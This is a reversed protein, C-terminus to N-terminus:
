GVQSAGLERIFSKMNGDIEDERMLSALRPGDQDKNFRLGFNQLTLDLALEGPALYRAESPWRSEIEEAKARYVEAVRGKAAELSQMLRDIEKYTKEEVDEGKRVEHIDRPPYLPVCLTKTV